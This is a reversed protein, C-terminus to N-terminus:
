SWVEATQIGLDKSMPVLWHLNPIVPLKHLDSVPFVSVLEDTPSGLLSLDDWTRFFYVKWDTGRLTCFSEWFPNTLGTEEQFERVM